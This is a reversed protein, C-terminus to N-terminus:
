SELYVPRRLGVEALQRYFPTSGALDAVEVALAAQYYEVAASREGATDHLSGLIALAELLYYPESVHPRDALIQFCRQAEAQNGLGLYTHARLNVAAEVDSFEPDLQDLYDLAEALRNQSYAITAERVLLWNALNRDM